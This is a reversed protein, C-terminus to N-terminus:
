RIRALRNALNEEICCRLNRLLLDGEDVLDDWVKVTDRGCKLVVNVLGHKGENDSM